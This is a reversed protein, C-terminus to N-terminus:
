LPIAESSILIPIKDIVPFKVKAKESILADGSQSLYLSGGSIPCQLLPLINLNNFEQNSHLAEFDTFLKKSDAEPGEQEKIAKVYISDAKANLFPIVKCLQVGALSAACLIKNRFTVYKLDEPLVGIGLFSHVDYHFNGFVKEFMLKYEEISYYRVHWSNIDDKLTANKKAPGIRNRIGNKNPFELYTFGDKKLVRHIHKLCKLLRSEATHQIVSFSWVLDFIESQFPINQLDAVVAYGKKNQNKLTELSAQCFELRLDIGVPLYGKDAGAVLWRGWGTGIDLMLGKEVKPVPLSYQPYWNLKGISDAYQKGNTAAIQLQVTWPLKKSYGKPEPIFQLKEYIKSKDFSEPTQESNM